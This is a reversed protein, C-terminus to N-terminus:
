GKRTPSRSAVRGRCRAVDVGDYGVSVCAILGLNPLTELFEPTLAVEGAHVIARVRPREDESLEWARVTSLGGQRFAPELVTLFPAVILILPEFM